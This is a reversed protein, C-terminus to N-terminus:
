PQGRPKRPRVTVDEAGEACVPTGALDDATPPAQPPAPPAGPARTGGGGRVNAGRPARARIAPRDEEISVPIGALDDPTPNDHGRAGPLPNSM